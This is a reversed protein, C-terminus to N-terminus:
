ISATQKKLLSAAPILWEAIILLLAVAIFYQFYSDYDTFTVSGFSRSEMSDVLSTLKDAAQKTNTLHTYTGGSAQALSKLEEENLKTIVPQGNEDLKPGNIEPDFITSGQPSGIGITHIVVGEKAANRAAELAHEDHDEGDSILIISKFKREKQSFSQNALDLADGLVTGQTPIMNPNVTELLMKSASVDTTLPVQLYSKGAFVVLGVRDNVMQNMMSEILQKARTLRDPQVDKALMSKSVDLAFFVDVGKREAKETQAGKQLNALGVIGFFLAVILLVMRTTSRGAIRGKVLHKLLDPNGLKNIKSKRWNLYLIYLVVVVPILLLLLLWEFHQFQIM